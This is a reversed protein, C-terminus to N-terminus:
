EDKEKESPVSEGRIKSSSVMEAALAAIEDADADADFGGTLWEKYLYYIGASVYIHRARFELSHKVADSVTQDNKLMDTYLEKLREKLAGPNKSAALAAYFKRNEDFFTSLGRLFPKPDSYFGRMGGQSFEQIKSALDGEIQEFVARTDQYHAYFTGRNIEARKVIDTVTIRDIEKEAMLEVFAQKILQRSRISSKYEAREGM